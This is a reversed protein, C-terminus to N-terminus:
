LEPIRLEVDKQESTYGGSLMRFQDDTIRGLVNDEYLREFLSELENKRKKLRGLEASKASLEKRSEAHTAIRVYRLIHTM